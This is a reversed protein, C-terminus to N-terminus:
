ILALIDRQDIIPGLWHMCDRILQRAAEQPPVEERADWVLSSVEISRFRVAPLTLENASFSVVCASESGSGAAFAVGQYLDSRPWESGFMKYKVDGVARVRDFRLDPNISMSSPVLLTGYKRVDIAPQLGEKLVARVGAEITEPTRLLFSWAKLLGVKLTMASASIILRALALADAYHTSRRDVEVLLDHRQVPGVGDFYSSFHRCERRSEISVAASGLLVGLAAFLVRNYANDVTFDDYSCLFSLSGAYYRDSTAVANIQGRASSLLDETNQYDRILDRSIIDRMQALFWLAVLEWLDQGAGLNLPSRDLRPIATAKSFIFLVHKMPIKPEVIFTADGVGFAGIANSVFVRWRGADVPNCSIVTREDAATEVDPAGWYTSKSALSSGLAVISRAEEPTLDVETARSERLHVTRSM